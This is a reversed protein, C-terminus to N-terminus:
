IDKKQTHTHEFVPKSCTFSSLIKMNPHVIVKFPPTTLFTQSGILKDSYFQLLTM